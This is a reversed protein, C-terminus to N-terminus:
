GYIPLVSSWLAATSMWHFHTCIVPCLAQYVTFARLLGSSNDVPHSSRPHHERSGLFTEGEEGLTKLAESRLLKKGKDKRPDETELNQSTVKQRM